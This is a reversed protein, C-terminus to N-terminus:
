ISCIYYIRQCPRMVVSFRKAVQWNMEKTSLLLRPGAPYTHCPSAPQVLFLLGLSSLYTMLFLIAHRRHVDLRNGAPAALEERFLGISGM